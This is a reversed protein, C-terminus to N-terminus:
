KFSLGLPPGIGEEIGNEKAWQRFWDQDIVFGRDHRPYAALIPSLEMRGAPTEAMEAFREADAATPADGEIPVTTQGDQDREVRGCIPCTWLVSEEGTLTDVHETRNLGHLPGARRLIKVTEAM